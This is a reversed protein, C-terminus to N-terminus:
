EFFVYERDSFNAKYAQIHNYIRVINENIDDVGNVEFDVDSDMFMDVLGPYNITASM